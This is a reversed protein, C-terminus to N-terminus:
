LLHDDIYSSRYHELAFSQLHQLAFLAIFFLLIELKTWFYSLLTVFPVTM